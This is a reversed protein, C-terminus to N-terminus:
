LSRQSLIVWSGRLRELRFVCTDAQPKPARGSFPTMQVLRKCRVVAASPLGDPGSDIEPEGQPSLQMVVSRAVAFASGLKRRDVETMTPFLASVKGIDKATYAAAFHQLANLVERKAIGSDFTKTITRKTEAGASSSAASEGPNVPDTKLSQSNNEVSPTSEVSPTPLAPIELFTERPPSFLPLDIEAAASATQQLPPSQREALPAM